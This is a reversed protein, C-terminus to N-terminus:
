TFDNLSQDETGRTVDREISVVEVEMTKMNWLLNGGNKM